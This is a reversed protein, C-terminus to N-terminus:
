DKRSTTTTISQVLIVIIFIFELTKLNIHLIKLNIM